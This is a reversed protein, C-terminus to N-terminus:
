PPANGVCHRVFDAQWCGADRLSDWHWHVCDHCERPLTGEVFPCMTALGLRCSPSTDPGTACNGQSCSQNWWWGADARWAPADPGWFVHSPDLTPGCPGHCADMQVADGTPDGM